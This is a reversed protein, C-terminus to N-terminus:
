VTSMTCCDVLCETSRNLYMASGNETSRAMLVFRDGVEIDGVATPTAAAAVVGSVPFRFVGGGLPAVEGIVKSGAAAKLRGTAPHYLMGRHATARVFREETPDPYGADLRWDFSRATADVAVVTGQTFPLPDYDIALGRATVRECGVFLVGDATHDRMLLLSGPEGLIILERADRLLAHTTRGSSRERATALVYRGQPVLVTAGPESVTAARIAANIAPADDAVGDGLAGFDRVDFLLSPEEATEVPEQWAGRGVGFNLPAAAGAALGALFARRTLGLGLPGQSRRDRVM